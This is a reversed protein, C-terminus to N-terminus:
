LLRRVRKPHAFELMFAILLLLGVLGAYLTDGWLSYLTPKALVPPLVDDIIGIHNLELQSVIRGRADIICSVGNNAARVVPMGQEIARFRVIHLHQYPGVFNGFWADNTINIIWQADTNPALNKGPFIIEYCILPMFAPYPPLSMPERKLGPSYDREGVTLKHFPLLGRLPMYEGFPTLHNKDYVQQIAGAADLMYLSTFIAAGETRVAGVILASTPYKEAVMFERVQPLASIDAPVAAEPWITLHIPHETPLASLRRLKELNDWFKHRDWKEGQPISPQVLRIYTPEGQPAFTPRNLFSVGAVVIFFICVCAKFTISTRHGLTILLLTVLSLGYSSLWAASQIVPMFPWIHCSLNWPFGTFLHGRMYEAVSIAVILVFVRAIKRQVPVMYFATLVMSHILALGLSLGLVGLPGYVGLGVVSFAHTIWHLSVSFLGMYFCLVRFAFIRPSPSTIFDHSLVYLGWLYLPFVFFPAFGFAGLAGTLFLM